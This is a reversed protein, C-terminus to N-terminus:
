RLLGAPLQISRLLLLLLLMHLPMLPKLLLHL